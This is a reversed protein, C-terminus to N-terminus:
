TAVVVRHETIAAGCQHNVRLGIVHLRIRRAIRAVPDSAARDRFLLSHFYHSPRGWGRARGERHQGTRRASKEAPGNQVENVGERAIQLGALVPAIDRPRSRRAGNQDFVPVGRFNNRPSKKRTGMGGGSNGTSFFMTRTRAVIELCAVGMRHVPLPWCRVRGTRRRALDKGVVAM